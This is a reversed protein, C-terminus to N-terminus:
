EFLKLEKGMSIAQTRSSVGLKTYINSIHRKVTPISIFLKESIEQNSCGVQIHKLVELERTTLPEVLLQMSTQMTGPATQLQSLIVASYCPEVQRSQLQCLLRAMSEGEDLFIRVYGEPQALAVARKLSALSRDTDKLKQFIQARLVLIEIMRGMSESNEADVLLRDSFTLATQYDGGALLTRLLILYVPEQLHPIEDGASINNKRIFQFAREANGSALWFRALDAKVLTALRPTLTYGASIEEALNCAQQAGNLNGRVFELNALLAYGVAQYDMDGWQECLEICQRLYQSSEELQNWEYALRALSAHIGTALPSRQGDPRVAMQLSQECVTLARHLHGQEMLINALNSNAIIVMHLNKADRGIRAAETYAQVAEDLNGNIWSADGLLSTAVSRISRSISSCDPLLDLAQRAYDAAHRTDGRLNACHAHAAAITGNMTRIEVTPQLPSLLQEPVLLAQESGDLDGVMALAWAKQIALWPRTEPQYRIADVWKLFTTVEGSILLFCGNKEILDAVREDDGAQVAHQIAESIFGNQEYWHSARLHLESLLHPFQHELRKNLVDMFLHHYRYWHREDDLPIVFLNMKELAALTAQGDTSGTHHPDVVAECLPGCLRDLISSQILFTSISEPQNKLVEEILYDMIYYHTGTFASVFAHIDKCHQMSLAALQLGAIWGETRTELAALDNASVNLGMVVNLFAAIEDLSFRLQEARIDMLQNRARLRTLPLPLDTRTLLVIHIQPPLHELLFSMMKLVVGSHIVHVDDLVLISATSNLALENTVLNMLSDYQSPRIGQLMDPFVDEIGADIKQLATLLYQLFRTPDNDGEDLSLWSSPLATENLWWGVLSTKGYGAPASIILINKDMGAKILDMLRTRAIYNPRTPPIYFKTALLSTPKQISLHHTGTNESIVCSSAETM